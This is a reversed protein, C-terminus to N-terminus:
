YALSVMYNELVKADMKYGGRFNTTKDKREFWQDIDALASAADVGFQLMANSLADVSQKADLGAAKGLVNVSEAVTGLAEPTKALDPGFKSLVTQFAELQTTASGGFQLALDQARQGLDNLGDGTVGTVASVSQLAREFNNGADIAATVGEQLVGAVQGGINALAGGAFAGKFVDSFQSQAESASKTAMQVVDKFGDEADKTDVGVKM